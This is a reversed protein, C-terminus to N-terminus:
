LGSRDGRRLNQYQSLSGEGPRPPLGAHRHRVLVARRCARFVTRFAAYMRDGLSNGEQPEYALRDGLWEIM